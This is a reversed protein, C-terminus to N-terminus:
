TISWGYKEERKEFAEKGGELIDCVHEKIGIHFLIGKALPNNHTCELAGTVYEFQYQANERNIQQGSQNAVIVQEADTLVVLNANHTVIIVQREIKKDKIFTNLETFITRNDLNDEPQDILIPYKANSLHLFLQLLVLGRKGPSMHLFSDNRQILDYDIYFLDELLANTVDKLSNGTKLHLDSNDDILYRFINNIKWKHQAFNDFVFQDNEEFTNEIVKSLKKRRNFANTFRAFFREEDFKIHAELKLESSIQKYNDKNLEQYIEDYLGLLEDYRRPIINKISDFQTKLSDVFKEKEDIKSLIEKQEKM